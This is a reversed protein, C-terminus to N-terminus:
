IAQQIICTFSHAIDVLRSSPGPTEITCHEILFGNTRSVYVDVVSSSSCLCVILQAPQYKGLGHQSVANSLHLESSGYLVLKSM